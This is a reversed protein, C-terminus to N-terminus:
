PFTVLAGGNVTFPHTDVAGTQGADASLSAQPGGAPAGKSLVPYLRLARVDITLPEPITIRPVPYPVWPPPYTVSASPFSSDGVQDQTAVKAGDVYWCHTPFVSGRGYLKFTTGVYTLVMECWVWPVHFPCGVKEVGIRDTNAGARFKIIGNALVKESGPIATIASNKHRAETAVLSIPSAEGQHATFSWAETTALLALPYNRAKFAPTWGPDHVADLVEVKSIQKTSDDITVRLHCYMLARFDKEKQYALFDNLPDPPMQNATAALGLYTKPVWDPDLMAAKGSFWVPNPRENIWSISGVKIEQLM